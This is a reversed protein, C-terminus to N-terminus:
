RKSRTSRNPLPRKHSCDSPRRTPLRTDFNRANSSLANHPAPLINSYVPQPQYAGGARTPEARVVAPPQISEVSHRLLLQSTTPPRALRNSARACERGGVNPNPQVSPTNANARPLFRQETNTVIQNTRPRFSCRDFEKSNM